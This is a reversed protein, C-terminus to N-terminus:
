EHFVADPPQPRPTVAFIYAFSAVHYKVSSFVAFSNPLSPKWYPSSLQAVFGVRRQRRTDGGHRASGTRLEELRLNVKSQTEDFSLQREFNYKM